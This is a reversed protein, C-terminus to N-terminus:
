PHFKSFILLFSFSHSKRTELQAAPNVSFIPCKFIYSPFHFITRLGMLFDAESQTAKEFPCRCFGSPRGHVLNEALNLKELM